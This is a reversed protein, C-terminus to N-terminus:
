IDAINATGKSLRVLLQRKFGTDLRAQVPVYWFWDRALSRCKVADKETMLVPLEDGFALDAAAFPHHDPFPHELLRIGRERLYAFFRAPDGIGAVAHVLGGCFGSLACTIDADALNVAREGTLMMLHEGEEAKGNGVVFDVEALRGAPERLPGAPLWFGNGLRRNGDIVAIEIDRALRYHQLGDDALIVDCANADLLARAAAVRDPAVVVPCACRGALLVPEDGVERPDSGPDVHRPWDKANGGYGRSVIGPRYGAERLCEVLHIVLPTKGTGGATLNGVVIVPVEVQRSSLLRFRYAWRRLIVIACYILGLPWLALALPNISYWHRGDLRCM